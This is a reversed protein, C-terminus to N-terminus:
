GIHVQCGDTAACRAVKPGVSLSARSLWNCCGSPPGPVGGAAATLESAARVLLVPHQNLQSFERPM